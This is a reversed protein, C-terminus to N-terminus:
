SSLDFIQVKGGDYNAVALQDQYISLGGVKGLEGARRGPRRYVSQVELRESFHAIQSNWFDTGYIGHKPHWALFYIEDVGWNARDAKHILNDQTDFHKLISDSRDGVLYTGNPLCYVSVPHNLSSSQNKSTIARVETGISDFIIIRNHEPDAVWINDQHDISLSFIM